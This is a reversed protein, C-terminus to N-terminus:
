GECTLEEIYDIVKEIQEDTLNRIKDVIRSEKKLEDCSKIGQKYYKQYNSKPYKRRNTETDNEIVSFNVKYDDLEQLVKGLANEPFGAKGNSVKYGLIAHIVYADEEYAAYFKGHKRLKVYDKM